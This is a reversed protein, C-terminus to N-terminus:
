KIFVALSLSTMSVAFSSATISIALTISASLSGISFIFRYVLRESASIKCKFDLPVAATPQDCRAQLRRAAVANSQTPAYGSHTLLYASPGVLYEVAQGHRANVNRNVLLASNDFPCFAAALVALAHCIVCGLRESNLMDHRHTTTACALKIIQCRRPLLFLILM